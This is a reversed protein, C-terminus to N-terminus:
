FIKFEWIYNQKLFFIMFQKQFIDKFPLVTLLFHEWVTSIREKEKKFVKNFLNLFWGGDEKFRTQFYNPFANIINKISLKKVKWINFISGSSM